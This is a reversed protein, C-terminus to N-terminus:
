FGKLNPGHIGQLTQKREMFGSRLTWAPPPAPPKFNPCQKGHGLKLKLNQKLEYRLLWEDSVERYKTWPYGPPDAKMRLIM